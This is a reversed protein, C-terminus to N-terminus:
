KTKETAATLIDSPKVSMIVQIFRKQQKGLEAIPDLPAMYRVYFQRLEPSREMQAVFSDVLHQQLRQELKQQMKMRLPKRMRPQM